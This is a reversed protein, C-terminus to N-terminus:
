ETRKSHAWSIASYTVFSLCTGVNFKQFGSVIFSLAFVIAGMGFICTAFLEFLDLLWEPCAPNKVQFFIVLFVGFFWVLSAIPTMIILNVKDQATGFLIFLLYILLAIGMPIIFSLKKNEYMKDLIRRM